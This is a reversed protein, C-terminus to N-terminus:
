DQASFQEIQKRIEEPLEKSTSVGAVASEDDETPWQYAQWGWLIMEEADQWRYVNNLSVAIVVNGANDQSAVLLSRGARPTLGTKAGILTFTRDEEAINLYMNTTQIDHLLRGDASHFSYLPTRLLEWIIEYRLSRAAGRAIDYATSYCTHEIGETELGSATCFHTNEMGLELARENMLAVFETETGAVHRALAVAADNASSILMAAMLDRVRVQEGVELRQGDCVYSNPCGVRTGEVTYAFEDITVLEDLNDVEEVVVLATFVKTISAVSYEQTANADYLVAGSRADM